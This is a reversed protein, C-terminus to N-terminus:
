ADARDRGAGRRRGHRGGRCLALPQEAPERCAGADSAIAEIAGDLERDRAGIVVGSRAWTATPPAIPREGRGADRAYPGPGEAPHPKVVLVVDARTRVADVLAPFAAAIQSHKSAVTVIAENGRAGLSDRLAARTSDSLARASAVLRDLRPSGTVALSAPSFAGARELYERAYEDFLLTRDPYPFGRDGANAASPQAEDPEHRYNLWHRYIFGHQLGATPIGRRRSELVIARGWGGAEACTIAASPGLADLAAAAEDM